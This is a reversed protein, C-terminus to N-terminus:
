SSPPEWVVTWGVPPQVHGQFPEGVIPFVPFPM